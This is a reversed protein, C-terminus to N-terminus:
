KPDPPSELATLLLELAVSASGLPVVHRAQLHFGAEQALGRLPGPAAPDPAIAHLAGRTLAWSTGPPRHAGVSPIRRLRLIAM